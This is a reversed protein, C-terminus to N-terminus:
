SPFYCPPLVHRPMLLRDSILNVYKVRDPLGDSKASCARAARDLVWTYEYLICTCHQINTKLHNKPSHGIAVCVYDSFNTEKNSGIRRQASYMCYLQPFAAQSKQVSLLHTIGLTSGIEGHGLGTKRESQQWPVTAM